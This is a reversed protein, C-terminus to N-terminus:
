CLNRPPSAIARRKAIDSKAAPLIPDINHAQEIQDGGYLVKNSQLLL